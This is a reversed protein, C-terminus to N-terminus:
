TYWLTTCWITDLSSLSSSLSADDDENMNSLCWLVHTYKSNIDITDEDDNSNNDYYQEINQYIAWKQEM